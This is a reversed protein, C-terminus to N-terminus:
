GKSIRLMTQNDQRKVSSIHGHDKLPGLDTVNLGYKSCQQRYFGITRWVVPFGQWSGENNEGINVNAYFSGDDSLHKSVFSLNQDLLDDSLHFLVSFAWMYDFRQDLMLQSADTVLLLTPKKEELGEEHLEKQSEVLVEARVDIGVYHHDQLYKIIPIGGRLTGCGIDLFYHEPALGRAKLFQIQFDRKMEWRKAPGVLAHRRERKTLMNSM